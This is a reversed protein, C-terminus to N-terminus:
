DCSDNRIRTVYYLVNNRESKTDIVKVKVGPAGFATGLSPKM